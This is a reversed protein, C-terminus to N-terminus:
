QSEFYVVLYWVEDPRSFQPLHAVRKMDMAPNIQLGLKEPILHMSYKLNYVMGSWCVM